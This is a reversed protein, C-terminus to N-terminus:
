VDLGPHPRRMGPDDCLREHQGAAAGLDPHQRSAHARRRVAAREPSLVRAVGRMAASMHRFPHSRTHSPTGTNQDCWTGPCTYSWIAQFYCDVWDLSSQTGQPNPHIDRTSTQSVICEPFGPYNWAISTNGGMLYSMVADSFTNNMTVFTNLTGALSAEYVSYEYPSQLPDALPFLNFCTAAPNAFGTIRSDSGCVDGQRGALTIYKITDYQCMFNRQVSCVDTFYQPPITYQSVAICNDQDWFTQYGQNTIRSSLNTFALADTSELNALPWWPWTTGNGAVFNVHVQPPPQCSQMTPANPDQNPPPELCPSFYQQFFNTFPDFVLQFWQYSVPQHIPCRDCAIVNNCQTFMPQTSSGPDLGYASFVSTTDVALQVPVPSVYNPVNIPYLFEIETFSCMEQYAERDMVRDDNTGTTTSVARVDINVHSIPSEMVASISAINNTQVTYCTQPGYYLHDPDSVPNTVATVFPSSPGLTTFPGLLSTQVVPV